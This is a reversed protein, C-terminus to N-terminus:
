LSPRSPTTSSCSVMAVTMAWDDWGYGIRARTYMRLAYTLFAPVFLTVTLAYVRPASSASYLTNDHPQAGAPAAGENAM